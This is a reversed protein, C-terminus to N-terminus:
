QSPRSARTARRFEWSFGALFILGAVILLPIGIWPSTVDYAVVGETSSRPSIWLAWAISGVVGLFLGSVLAAVGVLFSKLYLMISTRLIDSEPL